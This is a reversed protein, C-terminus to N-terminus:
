RVALSRQHAEILPQASSLADDWREAEISQLTRAVLEELDDRTM